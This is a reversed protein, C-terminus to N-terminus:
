GGGARRLVYKRLRWGAHHKVWAFFGRLRRLRFAILGIRVRRSTMWEQKYVDDGMLYDVESVRDCDIVHRMMTMTLVSGVSLKEHGPVYALKYISAKGASVLWVQSAVVEGDLWLQGLRLAGMDAAMRMLGPVFEPCPEPSKWSRAYVDQFADIASNLAEGRAALVVARWDHKQNLRRVAREVTHRLRSPRQGWYSQFSRGAIKEYWSGFCFYRDTRYGCAALGVELWQVCGDDQSLPQFMLVESGPLDRVSKAWAIAASQDKEGGAASSPSFLPTYYNSVGQIPSRPTLRMLPICGLGGGVIPPTSEHSVWYPKREFGHKLLLDFWASSQFIDFSIHADSM